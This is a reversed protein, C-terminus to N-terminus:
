IHGGLINLKKQINFIAFIAIVLIVIIVKLKNKNLKTM